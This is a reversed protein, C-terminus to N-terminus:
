PMTTRPSSYIQEAVLNRGKQIGSHTNQTTSKSCATMSLIPSTGLWTFLTFWGVLCFAGKKKKERERKQDISNSLLTFNFPRCWGQSKPTRFFFFFHWLAVCSLSLSVLPMCRAFWVTLFCFFFLNRFSFPIGYDVIKNARQTKHSLFSYETM